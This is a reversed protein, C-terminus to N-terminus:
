PLYYSNIKNCHKFPTIIIYYIIADASSYHCEVTTSFLNNFKSVYFKHKDYINIRNIQMNSHIQIAISRPKYVASTRSILCRKATKSKLCRKKLALYAFIRFRTWFILFYSRSFSFDAYYENIFTASVKIDFSSRTSHLWARSLSVNLLVTNRFDNM